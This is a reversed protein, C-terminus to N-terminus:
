CVTARISCRTGGSRTMTMVPDSWASAVRAWSGWKGAAFMMASGLGRSVAGHTPSAAPMTALLSRSPVMITIGASWTMSGTSANRVVTRAATDTM